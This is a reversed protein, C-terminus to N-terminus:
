GERLPDRWRLGDFRAFDRDTTYLVAGHEMALAALHADMVLPGRAQGAVAIESLLQWHRPTPEVLTVTPLALWEQVLTVADGVALPRDFVTPSSSIRVFALLTTLAFAVDESVIAQEFWARARDHHPSSTDYTYLLLNADVLIM